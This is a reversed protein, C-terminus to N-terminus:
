EVLGSLRSTANLEACWLCRCGITGFPVEGIVCWRFQFLKISLDVVYDTNSLVSFAHLCVCVSIFLILASAACVCPATTTAISFFLVCEAFDSFVCVCM